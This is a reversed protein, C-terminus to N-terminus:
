DSYVENKYYSLNLEPDGNIYARQVQYAHKINIYKSPTKDKIAKMIRNYDNRNKFELGLYYNKIESNHEHLWEFYEHAIKIDINM